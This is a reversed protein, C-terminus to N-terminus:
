DMSGPDYYADIGHERLFGLVDKVSDEWVLSGQAGTPPSYRVSGIVIAAGIVCSGQDGHKAVYEACRAEWMKMAERIANM